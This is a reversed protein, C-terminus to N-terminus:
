TSLVKYFILLFKRIATGATAASKSHKHNKDAIFKADM